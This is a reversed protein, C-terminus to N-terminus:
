LGYHVAQWAIDIVIAPRGARRARHGPMACTRM